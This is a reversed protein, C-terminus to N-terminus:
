QNIFRISQTPSFDAGETQLGFLQNTLSFVQLTRDNVNERKPLAYSTGEDKVSIAADKADTNVVFFARESVVKGNHYNKMTLPADGSFQALAHQGLYVIVGAVSRLTLDIGFGEPISPLEDDSATTAIDILTQIRERNCRASNENKNLVKLASAKDDSFFGYNSSPVVIQVHQSDFPILHFGASTLDKAGSLDKIGTVKIPEGVPKAPLLTAKLELEAFSASFADFAEWSKKNTANTSVQCQGGDAFLINAEEVMLHLLMSRDVGQNWFYALHEMTLPSLLGQWFEKGNLPQIDFNAEQDFTVTPILTFSSTTNRGFPADLENEVASQYTGNIKGIRSFHLPRSKAARIINLLLIKDNSNAVARNYDVASVTVRKASVCGFLTLCSLLFLILAKRM